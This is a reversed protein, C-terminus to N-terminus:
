KLWKDKCIDLYDYSPQEVFMIIFCESIEPKKEIKHGHLVHQLLPMQEQDDYLNVTNWLPRHSNWCKSFKHPRALM